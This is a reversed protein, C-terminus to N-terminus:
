RCGRARLQRLEEGVDIGDVVLRGHVDVDQLFTADGHVAFAADDTYSFVPMTLSPANDWIIASLFQSEGDNYGHYGIHLEPEERAAINVTPAVVEISPEVLAMFGCALLVSVGLLAAGAATGLFTGWMMDYFPRLNPRLVEPKM